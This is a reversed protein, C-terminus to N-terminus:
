YLSPHSGNRSRKGSLCRKDLRHGRCRVLGLSLNGCHGATTKVPFRPSSPLLSLVASYSLLYEKYTRGAHRTPRTSCGKKNALTSECGRRVAVKAEEFYM